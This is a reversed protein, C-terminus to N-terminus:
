PPLIKQQGQMPLRLATTTQWLIYFFILFYLFLVQFGKLFASNYNPAISIYSLHYLVENTIFLNMLEIRM